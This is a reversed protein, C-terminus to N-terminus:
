HKVRVKAPITKYYYKQVELFPPSAGTHNPFLWDYVQEYHMSFTWIQQWVHGFSPEFTDKRVDEISISITFPTISLKCVNVCM